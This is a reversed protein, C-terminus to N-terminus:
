VHMCTHFNCIFTCQAPSKHTHVCTHIYAHMNTHICLVKTSVFDDCAILPANWLSELAFLADAHKNGHWWRRVELEIRSGFFNVAARLWEVVNAEKEGEESAPQWIHRMSIRDVYRPRLAFFPTFAIHLHLLCGIHKHRHRHRHRHLKHFFPPLSWM